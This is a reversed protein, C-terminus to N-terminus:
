VVKISESFDKWYYNPFIKFKVFEHNSVCYQTCLDLFSFFLPKINFLDGEQNEIKIPPVLVMIMWFLVKYKFINQSKVHM